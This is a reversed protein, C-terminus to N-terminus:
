ISDQLKKRKPQTSQRANSKRRRGRLNLHDIRQSDSYPAGKLHRLDSRHDRDATFHRIRPGLHCIKRGQAQLGTCAARFLRM